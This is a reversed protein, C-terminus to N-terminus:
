VGSIRSRLGGLGKVKSSGLDKVKFGGIRTRRSATPRASLRSAMPRGREGAKASSALANVPRQSTGLRSCFFDLILGCYHRPPSQGLRDSLQLQPLEDVLLWPCLPKKPGARRLGLNHGRPSTLNPDQTLRARIAHARVLLHVLTHDVTAPESGDEVVLRM